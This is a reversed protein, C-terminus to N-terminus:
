HCCGGHQKKNSSHNDQKQTVGKDLDTNKAEGKGEEHHRGGRGSKFFMWIHAAAFVGIAVPFLWSGGKASQGGLFFLALLPLACVLMMWMM